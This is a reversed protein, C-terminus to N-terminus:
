TWTKYYSLQEETANLLLEAGRKCIKKLERKTVRFEGRIVRLHPPNFRKKLRKSINM